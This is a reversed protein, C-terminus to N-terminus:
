KRFIDEVQRGCRWANNTTHTTDQECEGFTTRAGSLSGRSSYTVQDMKWGCRLCIYTLVLSYQSYRPDFAAYSDVFQFWRTLSVREVRSLFSHMDKLSDWLIRLPAEPYQGPELGRASLLSEKFFFEFVEDTPGGAIAVYGRLSEKLKVWFASGNWPGWWCNM